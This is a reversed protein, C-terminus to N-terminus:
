SSRNKDKQSQNLLSPPSLLPPIPCASNDDGDGAADNEWGKILPARDLKLSIEVDALVVVVVGVVAVVDEEVVVGCRRGNM